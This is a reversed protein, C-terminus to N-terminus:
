GNQNVGIMEYLDAIADMLDLQNESINKQIEILFSGANENFDPVLVALEDYEWMTKETNQIINKRLYVTSSTVQIDQPRVSSESKYYKYM